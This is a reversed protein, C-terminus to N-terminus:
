LQLQLLNGHNELEVSGALSERPGDLGESWVPYGFAGFEEEMLDLGAAPVQSARGLNVAPDTVTETADTAPDISEDPLAASELNRFFSDVKASTTPQELNCSVQSNSVNQLDGVAKKAANIDEEQNSSSEIGTESEEVALIVILNNVHRKLKRNAQPKYKPSSDQKSAVTIEVNRVIGRADPYVDSVKCLRFEGRLTNSDQLVCVDGVRLNRKTHHWKQRVLLTPFYLRLWVGWYQDVIRQCLLFRQKDIQSNNDEGDKSGFPGNDITDSNKGLLLSNPSLYEFDTDQNPKIGIPRSNVLHAAELFVTNLEDLTLVHSGLKDMLSKIVGKALKVMVEAGGNQHQSSAMIFNWEFGHKAGFAALESKSWGRRWEALEKSAGVLQTGPDSTISKVSGRSAKLRRITHLISQTDYNVAVDLYIARTSTCSYLVGFVKKNSRPGKKICDDKITFPGFLDMLCHEFAPSMSSRVDPLDGMQQSAFKRRQILCHKCKRDVQAVIRRLQPIFVENRIHCVLNDISCHYKNHYWEVILKAFKGAPLYPVNGKGDFGIPFLKIRHGIIFQTVKTGDSLEKEIQRIMLHKKEKALKEQKKQELSIMYQFADSLESASVVEFQKVGTSTKIEHKKADIRGAQGQEGGTSSNSDLSSSKRNRRVRELLIKPYRRYLAVIRM